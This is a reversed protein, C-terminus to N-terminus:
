IHKKMLRIVFLTLLYLFGLLSSLIINILNRQVMTWVLIVLLVLHLIFSVYTFKFIFLGRINNLKKTFKFITKDTDNVFSKEDPREIEFRTM